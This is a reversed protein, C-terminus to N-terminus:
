KWLLNFKYATSCNAVEPIKGHQLLMMHFFFNWSDDLPFVISYVNPSVCGIRGVREVGCSYLNLVACLNPLSVCCKWQAVQMNCQCAKLSFISCKILVAMQITVREPQRWAIGRVMFSKLTSNILFCTLHTLLKLGIKKGTLKCLKQGRSFLWINGKTGVALLNLM